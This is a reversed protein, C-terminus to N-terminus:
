SDYVADYIGNGFLFVAASRDVNWGARRPAAAAAATYYSRVLPM